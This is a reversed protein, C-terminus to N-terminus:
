STADWRGCTAVGGAGAAIATRLAVLATADNFLSEGELITVIRRPLGIRRGIATAAVADPPAVVAGIALAAWWGIGPLLAHVLAGMGLTTFLVLGVSLLLIPRRNANFDVLSTQIAAAYLLPPLLGLLVVDSSLHVTPVGPSYSAVIGVVILGLPAPFRLREALATGALVVIALAVLEFAIEM